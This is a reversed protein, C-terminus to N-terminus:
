FSCELVEEVEWVAISSIGKDAILIALNLSFLYVQLPPLEAFNLFNLINISRNFSFKNVKGKGACILDAKNMILVRLSRTSFTSCQLFIPGTAYADLMQAIQDSDESAASDTWTDSVM